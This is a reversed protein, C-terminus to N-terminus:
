KQYNFSLVIPANSFASVYNIQGFLAFPVSTLTVVPIPNKAVGSEELVQSIILARLESFLEDSLPKGIYTPLGAGYTPHWIYSGPATMLRRLIRQQTLTDGEVTQLDGTSTFLLDSGGIRNSGIVQSIGAM